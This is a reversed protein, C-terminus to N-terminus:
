IESRTYRQISFQLFDGKKQIETLAQDRLINRIKQRRLDFYVYCSKTTLFKM